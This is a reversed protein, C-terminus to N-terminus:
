QKLERKFSTSLFKKEWKNNVEDYVGVTFNYTNDDVYEWCDTLVMDDTYMPYKYTYYINKDQYKFEGSTLNGFIDFEFFKGKNEEKNFSIIGENRLGFKYSEQSTNGQTKTKLIAGELGKQYEIFLKCPTGDVWSAGPATKWIGGILNEHEPFVSINEQALLSM